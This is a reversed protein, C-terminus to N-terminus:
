RKGHIQNRYWSWSFTMHYASILLISFQTLDLLHTLFLLKFICWEILAITSESLPEPKRTSIRGQPPSKYECGKFQINKDTEIHDSRSRKYESRQEVYFQTIWRTYSNSGGKYALECFQSSRSNAEHGDTRVSCSPEWQVSNRWIKYRLIKRFVTRFLWTENFDSLFLQYKVHLDIYM